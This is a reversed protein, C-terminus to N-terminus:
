SIMQNKTIQNSPTIKIKWKIKTKFRQINSNTTVQGIRAQCKYM